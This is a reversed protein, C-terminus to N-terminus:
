LWTGNRKVNIVIQTLDYRADVTAGSANKVVGPKGSIRVYGANANSIKFSQVNGSTAVNTVYSTNDPKFGGIITKDSKYMGSNLTTGFTLNTVYVEDGNAVPIYNTLMCDPGGDVRYGNDSGLRGGVVVADQSATAITNVTPTAKFFNTPEVEVAKEEAVATIVINGTVSAINIVGGSVSVASGGMTVSVSKLEYGDKATITASYSEGEVIQTASNNISCQTLNKTITYYVNSDLVMNGINVIEGNDMEYKLTYTGDALSGNLVITNNEDVYGFVDGSEGTSQPIGTGVPTGDVFIYILGDSAIGLSLKNALDSVMEAKDADTLVYDNGKSGNKVTLTKGDSFTVVNSGGDETSESVSTVTVSTGNAGAAGASGTAGRVSVHTDMYAYTADVYYVHYQYYSYAILDGVLVDDVGAQTKITSISMRKIPNIGGTATTYSSPATTVKLIGTGRGGASGTNGKSGNKVTLTKGDSFTVVNTGGDATSETVKSVTVSTGDNGKSGDKGAAGQAGRISPTTYTTGDTFTLTLTYDANLVATKIGNGDKGDTGASGDKGASGASGKSGNKVNFTFTEGNSLTVTIVNTGGDATSTTTQEVKTVSVGDEVPNEAFYSEIATALQEKNDGFNIKAINNWDDYDWYDDAGVFINYTVLTIETVQSQYSYTLVFRAIDEAYNTLPIYYTAGKEVVKCYVTKGGEVAAAIDAFPTVDYEAIFTGAGGVDITSSSWTNPAECHVVIPKGSASVGTFVAEGASFSMLPYFGQGYICFVKKGNRYSEHIEAHTTTGYSATFIRPMKDILAHAESILSDLVNIENESEIQVDDANYITEDVVVTFNPSTLLNDNIDYLRIECAVIGAVVSTQATITYTITNGVIDCDNFVIKGDPKKGVFAAYVNKSLKYPKGNESLSVVLKNKTDNKKIHVTAQSNLTTMELTLRHNLAIM